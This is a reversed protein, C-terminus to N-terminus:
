RGAHAHRYRRQRCANSCCRADSRALIFVRDCTECRRLVHRAPRALEGLQQLAAKASIKEGAAAREALRTTVELGDAARTRIAALADLEGAKDLSTDKVMALIESGLRGRRIQRQITRQSKGSAKAVRATYAMM